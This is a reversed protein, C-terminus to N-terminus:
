ALTPIVSKLNVNRPGVLASLFVDPLLDCLENEDFYYDRCDTHQRSMCWFHLINKKGEKLFQNKKM